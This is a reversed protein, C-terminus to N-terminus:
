RDVRRPPLNYNDVALGQPSTEGSPLAIGSDWSGGAGRNIRDTDDGCILIDGNSRDVSLGSGRGEGSPMSSVAISWSSGSRRYIRDNTQGLVLIDGDAEFAIGRLRLEGSPGSLQSWTNAGIYYVVKDPDSHSTNNGTLYINGNTPHVALGTPGQIGLVSTPIVIGSDWSGGSYRYIRDTNTGTLLIDGNTPDVDLGVPSREDPPLAIGSDWMGDSRRYVRDQIGVVLIDGLAMEDRTPTPKTIQQSEQETTPSRSVVEPCGCILLAAVATAGLRAYQTLQADKHQPLCHSLPSWERPGGFLLRCCGRVCAETGSRGNKHSSCEIGVARHGIHDRTAFAVETPVGDSTAATGGGSSLACRMGACTM